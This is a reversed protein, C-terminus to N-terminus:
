AHIAYHQFIVLPDLTVYTAGNNNYYDLEGHMQAASNDAVGGVPANYLASNPTITDDGTPVTQPKSPDDNRYDFFVSKTDAATTHTAGALTTAGAFNQLWDVADNIFHKPSLDGLGADNGVSAGALYNLWTAVVDRGLVWAGDNSNDAGNANKSSADILLKADALKIFLTDEAENVFPTSPDDVDTIGNLNWDGILLGVDDANTGGYGNSDVSGDTHGFKILDGRAVAPFGTEGAQKPVSPDNDWFDAWQKSAWFGPTRVYGTPM